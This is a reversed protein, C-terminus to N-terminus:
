TALCQSYIMPVKGMVEIFISVEFIRPGLGSKGDACYAETRSVTIWETM